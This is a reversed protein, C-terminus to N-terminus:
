ISQFFDLINRGLVEEATDFHAMISMHNHGIMQMFRNVIHGSSRLKYFLEAGYIDLLPNEFEAIAIFTPISTKLVHTVPSLAEYRNTDSGFYALVGAANPNEILVDVRVRASILAIAIIDKALYGLSSDFCYHAVHTGGASHGLLFINHPNGGFQSISQKIWEIALALDNAGGPFVSEPALRYELNIGIYGNRAFWRPVNGYIEDSIKKEGRVFAGGHVFIIVPLAYTTEEELTYIDLLHRPHPGYSQDMTVKIGSKTVDHLILDFADVIVDRYKRIDGSYRPGIELLLKQVNEPLASLVNLNKM